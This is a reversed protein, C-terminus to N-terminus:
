VTNVTCVQVNHEWTGHVGNCFTECNSTEPDYDFRIGSCSVARRSFIDQERESPVSPRVVFCFEEGSLQSQDDEKIIAKAEIMLKLNPANVHIFKHDQIIIVVHAYSNMAGMLPQQHFIWLQDGEVLSDKVTQFSQMRNTKIKLGKGRIMKEFDDINHVSPLQSPCFINELINEYMKAKLEETFNVFHAISNKMEEGVVEDRFKELANQLGGLTGGNKKYDNLIEPYPWVPNVKQSLMIRHDLLDDSEGYVDLNYFFFKEWLEKEKPLDRTSKLIQEFVKPELDSLKRFNFPFLWRSKPPM